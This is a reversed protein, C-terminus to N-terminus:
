RKRHRVPARDDTEQQGGDVPWFKKYNTSLLDKSLLEESMYMSGM